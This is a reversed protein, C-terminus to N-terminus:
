SKYTDYGDVYKLIKGNRKRGRKSLALALAGLVEKPVAAALMIANAAAAASAGDSIGM